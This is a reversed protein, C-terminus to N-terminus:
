GPRFGAGACSNTLVEDYKETKWSLALVNKESCYSHERKINAEGVFVLDEPDAVLKSPNADLDSM